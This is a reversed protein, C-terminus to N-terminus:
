RTMDHATSSSVTYGFGGEVNLRLEPHRSGPDYRGKRLHTLSSLCFGGLPSGDIANQAISLLRDLTEFRQRPDEDRVVLTLTFSVRRLMLSSASDPQEIWQSPVLVALPSLDAPLPSLDLPSPFAVAAFEASASLINVLAAFADRDRHLSISPGQGGPASAGLPGFYTPSFYSPAFYSTSPM